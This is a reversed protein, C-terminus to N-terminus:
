AYGEVAAIEVQSRSLKSQELVHHQMGAFDYRATLKVVFDPIHMKVRARIDDISVNRAKSFFQLTRAGGSCDCRTAADTENKALGVCRRSGHLPLLFGSSFFQNRFPLARSSITM